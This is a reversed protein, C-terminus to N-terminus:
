LEDVASGLSSATDGLVHLMGLRVVDAVDRSRL